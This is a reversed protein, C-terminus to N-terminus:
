LFRSISAVQAANWQVRSSTIVLHRDRSYREM